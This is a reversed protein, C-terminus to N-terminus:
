FQVKDFNIKLGSLLEVSCLIFKLAIVHHPLPSSFLIADDAYQLVFLGHTTINNEIRDLIGNSTALKIIRMFIDAALNFLLLSLPDDQRLGRKSQIKNGLIGNIIISYKGTRLLTM